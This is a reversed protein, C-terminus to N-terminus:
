GFIEFLAWGALRENMFLIGQIAYSLVTKLTDSDSTANLGFESKDKDIGGCIYADDPDLGINPEVTVSLNVPTVGAVSYTVNSVDPREFHSWDSSSVSIYGTTKPITFTKGAVTTTGEITYTVDVKGGPGATCWFGGNPRLKFNGLLGDRDSPRLIFPLKLYDYTGKFM